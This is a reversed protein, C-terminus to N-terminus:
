GGLVQHEPGAPKQAASPQDDFHWLGATQEDKKFPEQPVTASIERAVRSIRVEDILGDCGIAGDVLQGFALGGPMPAGSLPGASKDLVPHGDVFLRVRRPELIAALYHWRGDCIDANSKFDGGYGPQYVSLEGSGAHTYLEWHEASGKPDSAVLINFQQRSDLKAWCEITLPRVRQWSEGEIVMGGSLANSFSPSLTAQLALAPIAASHASTLTGLVFLSAALSLSLVM